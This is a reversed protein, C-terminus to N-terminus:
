IIMGFTHFYMISYGYSNLFVDVDRFVVILVGDVTVRLMM